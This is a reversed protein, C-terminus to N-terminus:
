WGKWEETQQRNLFANEEGQQPMKNNNNNDDDHETREENPANPRVTAVAAGWAVACVCCVHDRDYTTKDGHAAVPPHREAVYATYVILGLLSGSSLLLRLYPGARTPPPNTTPVVRRRGVVVVRQAAYAFLTSGFFVASAASTWPVDPPLVAKDDPTM